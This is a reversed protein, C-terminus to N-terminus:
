RQDTEARSRRREFVLGLREYGDIQLAKISPSGTTKWKLGIRYTGESIEKQFADFKLWLRTFDELDRATQIVGDEHDPFSPSIVDGESNPLGDNDDNIWFRFPADQSTIDRAEGSFAITGDRNADVAIRPPFSTFFCRAATSTPTTPVIPTMTTSSTRTTSPSTM